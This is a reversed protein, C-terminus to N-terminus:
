AFIAPGTCQDKWDDHCRWTDVIGDHATNGAGDHNMGYDEGTLRLMEINGLCGSGTPM